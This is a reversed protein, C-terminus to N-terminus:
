SSTPTAPGTAPGGSAEHAPDDKVTDIELQQLRAPDALV